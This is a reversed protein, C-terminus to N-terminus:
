RITSVTRLVRGNAELASKTTNTLTEVIQSFEEMMQSILKQSTAIADTESKVQTMVKMFENSANPDTSNSQMNLLKDTWQRSLDQLEILKKGMDIQQKAKDKSIIYTIFKMFQYMAGLDGSEAMRAFYFFLMMLQKGKNQNKLVSDFSNLISDEMMSSQMYADTTFAKGGFMDAGGWTAPPTFGMARPGTSGPQTGTGGAGGTTSAKMEFTASSTGDGPKSLGALRYASDSIGESAKKGAQENLVQLRNIADRMQAKLNEFRILKAQLEAEQAPTRTELTQLNKIESELSAMESQLNNIQSRIPEAQEAPDGHDAAPALLQQKLRDKMDDTWSTTYTRTEGNLEVVVTDGERVEAIQQEYEAQDIGNRGDLDRVTITNAGSIM